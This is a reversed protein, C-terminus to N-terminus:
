TDAAPPTFYTAHELDLNRELLGRKRALCLSSHVDVAEGDASRITVDLIRFRGPGRAEVRLALEGALRPAAVRQVHVVLVKDPLARNRQVEARLAPPIDGDDPSLFIATGPVRKVPPESEALATLFADLRAHHPPVDHSDDGPEREPPDALKHAAEHLSRRRVAATASASPQNV